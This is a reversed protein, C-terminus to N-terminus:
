EEFMSRLLLEHNVAGDLVEGVNFSGALLWSGQFSASLRSGGTQHLFPLTDSTHPQHASNMIVPLIVCACLTSICYKFQKISKKKKSVAM